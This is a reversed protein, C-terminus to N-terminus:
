NIILNTGDYIKKLDNLKTKLSNKSHSNFLQFIMEKLIKTMRKNFIYDIQEDTKQYYELVIKENKSNDILFVFSEFYSKLLIINIIDDDNPDSIKKINEIQQLIQLPNLNKNNIITYIDKIVSQKIAYRFFIEM